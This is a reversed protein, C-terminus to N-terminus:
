RTRGSVRGAEGIWEEKIHVFTKRNGQHKVEFVDQCYAKARAYKDIINSWGGSGVSLGKREM